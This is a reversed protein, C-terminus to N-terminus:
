TGATCLPPWAAETGGGAGGVSAGRAVAARMHQEASEADGAAQCAGALRRRAEPSDALAVLRELLPRALSPRGLDVYADALASLLRPDALGFRLAQRLAQCCALAAAAAPTHTLAAANPRVRPGAARWGIAATAGFVRGPREQWVLRGGGCSASACVLPGAQFL